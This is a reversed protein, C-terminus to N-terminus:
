LFPLYVDSQHSEDSYSFPDVRRLCGTSIAVQGTQTRVRVPLFSAQCFTAPLASPSVESSFAIFPATGIIGPLSLLLHASDGNNGGNNGM